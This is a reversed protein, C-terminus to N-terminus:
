LDAYECSHANEGKIGGINIALPSRTTRLSEISGSAMTAKADESKTAIRNGQCFGLSIHNVEGGSDILLRANVGSVKAKLIMPSNPAPELPETDSPEVCNDPVFTPTMPDIPVKNIDQTIIDNKLEVPSKLLRKSLTGERPLTSLARREDM